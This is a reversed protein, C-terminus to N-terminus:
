NAFANNLSRIHPLQPLSGARITPKANNVELEGRGIAERIPNIASESFMNETKTNDKRIANGHLHIVLLSLIFGLLGTKINTNESESFLVFLMIFILTIMITIMFPNSLIKGSSSIIRNTNRTVFDAINIAGMYLLAIINTNYFFIIISNTLIM